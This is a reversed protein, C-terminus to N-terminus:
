TNQWLLNDNSWLEYDIFYCIVWKQLIQYVVTYHLVDSYTRGLKLQGYEM